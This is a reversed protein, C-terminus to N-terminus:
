QSLELCSPPSTPSPMLSYINSKQDTRQRCHLRKYRIYDTHWENRIAHMCRSSFLGKIRSSERMKRDKGHNDVCPIEANFKKEM